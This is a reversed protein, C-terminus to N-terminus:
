LIMNVKALDAEAKDLAAEDTINLKNEYLYIYYKSM